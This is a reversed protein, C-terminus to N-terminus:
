RPLIKEPSQAQAMVLAAPLEGAFAKFYRAMHQYDQYGTQLAIGLWNLDSHREKLSYAQYFRNIGSFYELSNLLGYRLPKGSQNSM